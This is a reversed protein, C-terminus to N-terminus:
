CSMKSVRRIYVCIQSIASPGECQASLVSIIILIGSQLAPFSFTIGLKVRTKLTVQLQEELPGPATAPVTPLLWLCRSRCLVQASNLMETNKFCGPPWLSIHHAPSPFM